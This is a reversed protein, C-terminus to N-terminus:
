CSCASLYHRDAASSMLAHRRLLVSLALRKRQGFAAAPTSSAEAHSSDAQRLTGSEAVACCCPPDPGAHAPQLLRPLAVDASQEALLPQPWRGASPPEEAPRPQQAHQPSDADPAAHGHLMGPAPSSGPSPQVGGLGFERLYLGPDLYTGELILSKGDRISQACGWM